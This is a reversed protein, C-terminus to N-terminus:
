VGVSERDSGVPKALSLAPEVRSEGGSALESTAAAHARIGWHRRREGRGATSRSFVVELDADTLDNRVVQVTDLSLSGQEFKSRAAMGSRGFPNTRRLWGLWAPWRLWGLWAGAGGCRGGRGGRGRERAEGCVTSSNRIATQPNGDSISISYSGSGVAADVPVAAVPARARRGAMGFVPLPALRMVRYRGMPHNGPILSSGVSLLRILRM